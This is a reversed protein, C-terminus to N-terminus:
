LLILDDQAIAHVKDFSIFFESNYKSHKQIKSKDKFCM